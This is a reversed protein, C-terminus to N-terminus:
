RRTTHPLRLGSRPDRGQSKAARLVHLNAPSPRMSSGRRAVSGSSRRLEHHYLLAVVGVCRRLGLVAEDAIGGVLM